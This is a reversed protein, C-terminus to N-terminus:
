WGRRSLMEESTLKGSEIGSMAEGLGRSIEVLRAPDQWHEAITQLVERWAPGGRRKDPPFYTGAFFPSHDDPTLFVTLPWGGPRRSLLQHATQYIKDIDPREERDVKVNIFLRNMFEATAEDEFVKGLAYGARGGAILRLVRQLDGGGHAGPGGFRLTGEGEGGSRELHLRSCPFTM